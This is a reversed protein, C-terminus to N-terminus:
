VNLDDLSTVITSYHGNLFLLSQWVLPALTRYTTQRSPGPRLRAPCVPSSVMEERRGKRGGMASTEGPIRVWCDNTGASYISSQSARFLDRRSPSVRGGIQISESRVLPSIIEERGDEGRRARGCMGDASTVARFRYLLLWSLLHCDLHCLLLPLLPPRPSPLLERSPSRRSSSAPCSSSQGLSQDAGKEDLSTTVPMLGKRLSTRIIYIQEFFSLGLLVYLVTYRFLGEWRSLGGKM